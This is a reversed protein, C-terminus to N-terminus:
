TINKLHDFLTVYFRPVINQLNRTKLVIWFLLYFQNSHHKSIQRFIMLPCPTHAFPVKDAVEQWCLQQTDVCPPTEGAVDVDQQRGNSTSSSRSAREREERVKGRGGREGAFDGM